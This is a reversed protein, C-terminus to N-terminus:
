NGFARPAFTASSGGGQGDMRRKLRAPIFEPRPTTRHFGVKEATVWQFPWDWVIPGAWRPQALTPDGFGGDSGVVRLNKGTTLDGTVYLSRDGNPSGDADGYDGHGQATFDCDTSFTAPDDLRCGANIEDGTDIWVNPGVNFDTPITTSDFRVVYHLSAVPHILSTNSITFGAATGGTFDVLTTAAEGIKTAILNGDFKIHPQPNASIGDTFLFPVQAGLGDCAFGGTGSSGGTANCDQLINNNTLRNLNTMYNDFFKVDTYGAPCAYPGFRTGGTGGGIMWTGVQHTGCYIMRFVSQKQRFWGVRAGYSVSVAEFSGDTMFNTVTVGDSTATPASTAHQQGGSAPPDPKAMPFADSIFGRGAADTSNGQLGSGGFVVISTMDVAGQGAHRIPGFASGVNPAGILVRDVECTPTEPFHELTDEGNHYRDKPKSTRGHLALFDQVFLGDPCNIAMGPSANTFGTSHGSVRVKRVSNGSWSSVTGALWAEYSGVREDLEDLWHIAFSIFAETTPNTTWDSIAAEPFRTSLRSWRNNTAGDGDAGVLQSEDHLYFDAAAAEGDVDGAARDERSCGESLALDFTKVDTTVSNEIMVCGQIASGSWKSHLNRFILGSLTFLESGTQTEFSNLIGTGFSADNSGTGDFMVPNFFTISDGEAIKAYYIDLEDGTAWYESPDSWTVFMESTTSYNAFTRTMRLCDDTGARCALYGEFEQDANFPTDASNILTEYRHKGENNTAETTSAVTWSTGAVINHIFNGTLAEAVNYSHAQADAGLEPLKLTIEDTTSNVLTVQLFMGAADVFSSSGNKTFAEWQSAGFKEWGVYAWSGACVDEVYEIVGSTDCGTDNLTFPLGGLLLAQDEISSYNLVITTGSHTILDPAGVETLETGRITCADAPCSGSEFVIGGTNNVIAGPDINWVGGSEVTISGSIPAAALGLGGLAVTTTMTFGDAIVFDDDVSETCGTWASTGDAGLPGGWTGQTSSTCTESYAAGASLMLLPIAIATLLRRM